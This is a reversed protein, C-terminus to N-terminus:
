RYLISVDLFWESASLTQRCALRFVTTRHRRSVKVACARCRAIKPLLDHLGLRRHSWVGTSMVCSPKALSASGPVGGSSKCVRAGRATDVRPIPVVRLLEEPCIVPRCESEFHRCFWKEVVDSIVPLARSHSYRDPKMQVDPERGGAALFSGPIRGFTAHRHLCLSLSDNAMGASALM